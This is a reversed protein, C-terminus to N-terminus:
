EREMILAVAQRKLDYEHRGQQGGVFRTERPHQRGKPETEILTGTPFKSEELAFTPRVQSPDATFEDIEWKLTRRSSNEGIFVTGQSVFWVSDSKSWKLDSVIPSALGGSAESAIILGLSTDIELRRLRFSVQKELEGSETTHQILLREGSVSQETTPSILSETLFRLFTTNGPYPTITFNTWSRPFLMRLYEQVSFREAHEITVHMRIPSHVIMKKGDFILTEALDSNLVKAIKERAKGLKESNDVKRQTRAWVKDGRSELWVEYYTPTAKQNELTEVNAHLKFASIAELRRQHETAQKVVETESANLFLAIQLWIVVAASAVRMSRGKM